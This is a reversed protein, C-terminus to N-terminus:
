EVMNECFLFPPRKHTVAFFRSPLLLDPESLRSKGWLIPEDDALVLVSGENEQVLVGVM